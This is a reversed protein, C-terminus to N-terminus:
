IDLRHFVRAPLAVLVAMIGRWRSPAYCVRRGCQMAEVIRVAVAEPSALAHGQARLHATMATDAPGPKILTVTVTSGALRHQLGQVYRELMGKAAGYVYNSRRGRDGAVSGIVALRGHNAQQFQGAFAEAWLVPSIGNVRLAQECHSLDQQCRAQQPLDGHAILVQDIGGQAALQQVAANIAAPDLLDVTLCDLNSGPFRVSLDTAVRQLREPSRGILTLRVGAQRLWLRACHEALTSSAGVIVIHQTIM